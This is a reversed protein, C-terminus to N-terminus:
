MISQSIQEQSFMGLKKLLYTELPRNTDQKLSLFKLCVEELPLSSKAFLEAALLYDRAALLSQAYKEAVYERTQPVKCLEYAEKFQSRAFYIQWIDRDEESVIVEFLSQSTYVWFTKKTSDIALGIPQEGPTQSHM